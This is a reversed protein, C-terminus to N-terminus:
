LVESKKYEAFFFLPLDSNKNKGDYSVPECVEKLMFGNKAAINLYYSLPRHFHNTEGWFENTFQYPEIYKEIAKAYGYGNEDKLWHCDYFAPHVISYYLIGGTKLLRGCESFVFDINEVDMFVQNSFVMDFRGNEFDMPKTIDMVSFDTMPYCEKAIEIMKESGDIGAANAGISRFYDTFFGYGCGLDLVKEGNFHKFRNMVIKKNSEVYESNEQDETYKLAANNWQSITDNM